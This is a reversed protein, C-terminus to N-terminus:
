RMKQKEPPGGNVKIHHSKDQEGGEEVVYGKKFLNAATIRKRKKVNVQFM